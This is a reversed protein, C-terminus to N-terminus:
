EWSFEEDLIQLLISTHQDTHPQTKISDLLYRKDDYPSLTKKNQERVYIEHNRSNITWMKHSNVKTYPEFICNKFDDFEIFKDRTTRGIGKLRM